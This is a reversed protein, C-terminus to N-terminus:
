NHPQWINARIQRRGIDCIVEYFRQIAVSLSRTKPKAVLRTILLSKIPSSSLACKKVLTSVGCAPLVTYGLGTHVLNTM